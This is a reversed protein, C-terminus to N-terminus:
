ANAPNEEDEAWRLPNSGLYNFIRDYDAVNRIVHEYYNRQWLRNKFAAWGSEKVGHIYANTSMTKFWQVMHSIPPDPRVDDTEPGLGKVDPRFSLGTRAIGDSETPASEPRQGKGEIVIIGHLHNPMLVFADVSTSPFKDPLRRWWATIADGAANLRMEGNSIQGLLCARGQTVIMVFYAGKRSYDFGSLRISRRHHVEPDYRM